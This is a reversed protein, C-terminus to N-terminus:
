AAAESGPDGGAGLQTMLALLDLNIWGETLQGDRLRFLRTGSWRAHKGTATMGFLEGHHTGGNMGRIVVLDDEALVDEVDLRGDPFAERVMTYANRFGDRGQLQGPLPNHEIYDEAVLEDFSDLKGANIENVLRIAIEKNQEPTV